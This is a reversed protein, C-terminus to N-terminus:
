VGYIAYLVVAVIAGLQWLLGVVMEAQLGRIERKRQEPTM